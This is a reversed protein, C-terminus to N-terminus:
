DVPHLRKSADDRTFRLEATGVASRLHLLNTQDKFLDGFFRHQLTKDALGEPLAIEFFLTVAPDGSKKSEEDIQRGVWEIKGAKGAADTVVFTKVLYALIQADFEAAPTKDLRMERESQRILATELDNIFVTLSVELKKTTPNYEAEATSQHISHAHLSTVAFMLATFLRFAFYGDDSRTVLRPRQRLSLSGLWAMIQQTTTM